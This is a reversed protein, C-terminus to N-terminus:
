SLVEFHIVWVSPNQEWSKVGHISQWLTQYSYRASVFKYRNDLYDYHMDGNNHFRCAIGEKDCDSEQIVQLRQASLCTIEIKLPQYGQDLLRDRWNDQSKIELYDDREHALDVFADDRWKYFITPENRSSKIAREQGLYFKKRMNHAYIVGDKFFEGPKVLRRTQTKIGYLILRPADYCPIKSMILSM